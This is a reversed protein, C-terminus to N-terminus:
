ATRRGIPPSYPRGATTTGRARRTTDEIHSSVDQQLRHIAWEADALRNHAQLWDGQDAAHRALGTMVDAHEYLEQRETRSIM